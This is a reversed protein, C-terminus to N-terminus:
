TEPSVVQMGYTACMVAVATEGVDRLRSAPFGAGLSRSLSFLDPCDGPDAGARAAHVLVSEIRWLLGAMDAPAIFHSDAWLECSLTDPADNVYLYAKEGPTDTRTGWTLGSPVESGGSAPERSLVRRDNFFVNWELEAGREAVLRRSVEDKGALDYCAHKYAGLACRWARRAVEEFPAGAVEIVCPCSQAVTSVSGAFGPQFRNNVVLHLAVRDACTLPALAMAFAALLVPSTSLGLRGALMGAARYGVASELTLQWYRPSRPEASPTLQCDPVSAAIREYYRMSAEHMRRGGPGRQREAQEAPQLAAVPGTREHRHDFDDHLAAIGFADVAIHCIMEAIHTASGRHTIVAMRLPWERELDFQRAKYGAAVAGAVEGPDDDGADVVDLTIEGSAHVVQLPQEGPGFRLTTRLAQHRRMIFGLGAAVDAVTQGPPLERAGGLPLSDGVAQIVAWMEQQGWSLGFVGSGDGAFQVIVQNTVSTLV